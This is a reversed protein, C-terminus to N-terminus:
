ATPGSRRWRMIERELACCGERAGRDRLERLAEAEDGRPPPWGRHAIVARPLDGQQDVELVENAADVLLVDVALCNETEGVFVAPHEHRVGVGVPPELVDVLVLGIEVGQSDVQHVDEPPALSADGLVGDVHLHGDIGDAADRGQRVDVDVHDDRAVAVEDVHELLEAAM